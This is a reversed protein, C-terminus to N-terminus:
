WVGHFAAQAAQMAANVEAKGGQNVTAIIEDTAPNIVSFTESGQGSVPQGNIYHGHNHQLFAMVPQLLNIDSM